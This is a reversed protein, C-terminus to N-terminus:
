VGKRALIDFFYQSELEGDEPLDTCHVANQVDNDGFRARITQPRLAKAVQVDHPGCLERLSNVADPGRVQVAVCAGKTLEGCIASFRDNPVVGKYVEFFNASETRNLVFLQAASVELQAELIATLIKGVNGDRVAHPKIVCLSCNDYVATSPTKDSFMEMSRDDSPFVRINQFSGNPHRDFIEVLKNEADEGVLEVAFALGASSPESSGEVITKLKSLTYGNEVAYNLIAGVDRYSSSPIVICVKACKSGFMASTKADGFKTIKLQRSYVEIVNDLYLHDLKVSEYPTRKLFLKGSKCDVLRLENPKGSHKPSIYYTLLFTRTLDATNDYWDVFFQVEEADM